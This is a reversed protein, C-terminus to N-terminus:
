ASTAGWEAGTLDIGSFNATPAPAPVPDSCATFVLCLAIGTMMRSIM